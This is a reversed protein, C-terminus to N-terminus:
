TLIVYRLLKNFLNKWYESNLLENKHNNSKINYKLSSM